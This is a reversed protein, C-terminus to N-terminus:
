QSDLLAEVKRRLEPDGKCKENLLALRKEPALSVASQFIKKVIQYDEQKM